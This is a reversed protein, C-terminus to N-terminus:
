LNQVFHPEIKKNHFKAQTLNAVTALKSINGRPWKLIQMLGSQKWIKAGVM